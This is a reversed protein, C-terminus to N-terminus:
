GSSYTGDALRVRSVLIKEEPVGFAVFQERLFRSPALFLSVAECLARIHAM